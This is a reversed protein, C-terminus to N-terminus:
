NSDDSEVGRVVRVVLNMYRFRARIQIAFGVGGVVRVVLHTERVVRV